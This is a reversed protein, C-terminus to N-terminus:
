FEKKYNFEPADIHVVRSSPLRDLRGRIRFPLEDFPINTTVVLSLGHVLRYDFIIDLKEQVWPTSNETGLDDLVLLPVNLFRDFRSEYSRDGDERFGRRLEDFLLPVYAYKAPIGHHLWRRCVAIALHTKGRGTGAMLTLWTVDSGEALDFALDYADQLEPSKRFKDFTMHDTGVPLECYQLLNRLRKREIEARVCRCPMVQSYDCKGAEDVPHVFHADRCVPCSFDDTGAAYDSL